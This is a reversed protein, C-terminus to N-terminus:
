ENYSNKLLRIPQRHVTDCGKSTEIRGIRTDMNIGIGAVRYQSRCTRDAAARWPLPHNRPMPFHSRHQAIGAELVFERGLVISHRHAASCRGLEELADENVAVARAMRRQAHCQSGCEVRTGQLLKPLPDLLQDLIAELWCHLTTM